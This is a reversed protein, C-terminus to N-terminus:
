DTRPEHSKEEWLVCGFDDTTDMNIEARIIENSDWSMEFGPQSPGAPKECRCEGLWDHHRAWFRCTRCLRPDTHIM